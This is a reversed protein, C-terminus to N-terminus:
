SEVAFYEHLLAHRAAIRRRPDYGFICELLAIGEPGLQAAINRITSWNRKPWKPFGTKFDPLASVGPWIAETPTGLKQFIRFITDIESDGSFLPLGTAMEGIVCGVSWVDVQLSYFQGGLLIEPARYWTTVVEHTYKPMPLVFSRGLGFDAIKLRQQPDILLNQPKIDRHFIHHEHCFALGSFLQHSFDKVVSPRLVGHLNKMYRRLDNELFEFVLVMKSRRCHVGLLRVVNPHSLAKLLAIERIATPPVGEEESEFKMHKLAVTEKTRLCRAKYVKGYTGEGVPTKEILEYQSELRRDAEDPNEEQDM